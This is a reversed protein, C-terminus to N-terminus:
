AFIVDNYCRPAIQPFFTCDSKRTMPVDTGVSLKPPNARNHNVQAIWHLEFNIVEQMSESFDEFSCQNLLGRVKLFCGVLVEGNFEQLTFLESGGLATLAIPEVPVLEALMKKLQPLILKPPLQPVEKANVLESWDM